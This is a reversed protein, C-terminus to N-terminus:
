TSARSVPAPGSWISSSATQTTISTVPQFIGSGMVTNLVNSTVNGITDKVGM